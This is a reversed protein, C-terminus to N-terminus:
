FATNVLLLLTFRKELALAWNPFESQFWQSFVFPRVFYSSSSDGTCEDKNPRTCESSAPLKVQSTALNDAVRPPLCGWPRDTATSPTLGDTKCSKLRTESADDLHRSTCYIESLCACKYLVGRLCYTFLVYKTRLECTKLTVWCTILFYTNRVQM